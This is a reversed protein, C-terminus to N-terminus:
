QWSYLYKLGIFDVENEIAHSYEFAVGHADDIWWTFGLDFSFDNSSFDTWAGILRGGLYLSLEDTFMVETGGLLSWTLGDEKLRTMTTDRLYGIGAGLFPRFMGDALALEDFRSIYDIGLNWLSEDMVGHEVSAYDLYIKFDSFDSALSNASLNLANGELNAGSKGGDLMSYGIGFYYEGLRSKSFSLTSSFFFLILASSLIKM